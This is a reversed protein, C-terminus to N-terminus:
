REWVSLKGASRRDRWVIQRANCSETDLDYHGCAFHDKGLQKVNLRISPGGGRMKTLLVDLQGHRAGSPKSWEVSVRHGMSDRWEGVLGGLTIDGPASAQGGAEEKGGHRRPSVPAPEPPTLTGGASPTAEPTTAAKGVRAAAAAKSFAVGPPQANAATEQASEASAATGQSVPASSTDGAATAM